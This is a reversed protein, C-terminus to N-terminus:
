EEEPQDQIYTKGKLCFYETDVMLSQRQFYLVMLDPDLILMEDENLILYGLQNLLSVLMSVQPNTRVEDVKLYIKTCNENPVCYSLFKDIMKMRVQKGTKHDYETYQKRLLWYILEDKDTEEMNESKEISKTVCFGQILVLADVFIALSLSIYALFPFENDTLYGVAKEVQNVGDDSLREFSYVEELITFTDVPVIDTNETLVPPSVLYKNLPSAFIISKVDDVTNAELLAQKSESLTVQYQELQQKYQITELLYSIKIDLSNIKQLNDALKQVMENLDNTQLDIGYLNYKEINDLTQLINNIITNLSTIDGLASSTNKHKEVLTEYTYKDAEYEDIYKLEEEAKQKNIERKAKDVTTAVAEQYRAYNELAREYRVLDKQLREELAKLQKETETIDNATVNNENMVKESNTRLHDVTNSLNAEVQQLQKYVESELKVVINNSLSKMKFENNLDEIRSYVNESLSVYSFFSSVALCCLMPIWILHGKLFALIGKGNTHKHSAQYIPIYLSLALLTGQVGLTIICATWTDFFNSRLGSFTTYFSVVTLFVITVKLLNYMIINNVNGFLFDILLSYYYCVGKFIYTTSEWLQSLPRTTSTISKTTNKIGKNNKM